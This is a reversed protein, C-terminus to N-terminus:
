DAEPPYLVWDGDPVDTPDLQFRRFLSMADRAQTPSDPTRASDDDGDAGRFWITPGSADSRYLISAGPEFPDDPIGPLYHPVLRDLSDPWTAHDLRYADAALLVITADSAARSRHVTVVIQTMAPVIDTLPRWIPIGPGSHREDFRESWASVERLGSPDSALARSVNALIEDFAALQAARSAIAVGALPATANSASRVLWPTEDDFEPGLALPTSAVGRLIRAGEPTLRGDGKGDDTFSRQLLDLFMARESEFELSLSRRRADTLQHSLAIVHDREFLRPARDYVRHIQNRAFEYIAIAVLHSILFPESSIQESLAIMAGINASARDADGEEIAIETDMAFMRATNRLSGLHPLLVDIMSGQEAPDTSPSITVALRADTGDIEIERTQDSLLMGVIPRRTAETVRDLTPRFARMADHTDDRDPHGEPIYPSHEVGALWHNQDEANADKHSEALLATEIQKWEILAEQYIPWAKDEDPTALIPANLQAMYDMTISPSGSYFRATVGAYILILLGTLVIISRTTWARLQYLLPRKRKAARRILRAIPKPDGLSALIEPESTDADTADQAHAVLERAVDAQESARLRTRRVIQTLRKQVPAPLESADIIPAAKHHRRLREDIGRIVVMIPSYRVSWRWASALPKAPSM